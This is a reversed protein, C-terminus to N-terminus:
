AIGRAKLLGKPTPSLLTDKTTYDVATRLAQQQELNKVAADVESEPLNLVKALTAVSTSLRESLVAMIQSNIDTGMYIGLVLKTGVGLWTL